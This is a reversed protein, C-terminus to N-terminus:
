NPSFVERGRRETTDRVANIFHQCVWQLAYPDNCNLWDDHYEELFFTAIAENAEAPYIPFELDHLLFQRFSPHYLRLPGEPQPGTRSISPWPACCTQRSLCVAATVGGLQTLTLGPEHAEALAGLM